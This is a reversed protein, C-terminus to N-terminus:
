KIGKLAENIEALDFEEPDFPGLWKRLEKHEKHSPDGVAELLDEYGGPGGCDEPPCARKGALCVAHRVDEQSPLIKEVLIQHDWGDGFDYCYLFRAGEQTVVHCLQVKSDDEEDGLDDWDEDMGPQGYYTGDIEFEHLHTDTWGMAIQIIEHLRNLSTEAPVQIRRWIPPRVDQLTVRLQYVLTSLAKRQRPM